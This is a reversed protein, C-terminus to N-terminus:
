AEERDVNKTQKRTLEVQGDNQTYIAFSFFVGSVVHDVRIKIM